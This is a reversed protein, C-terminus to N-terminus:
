SSATRRRSSTEEWRAKARSSRASPKWASASVRIASGGGGVQQPALQALPQEGDQPRSDALREPEAFAAEDRLRKGRRGADVELAQPEVDGALRAVGDIARDAALLGRDAGVGTGDAVDEEAGGQGLLLEPPASGRGSAAM